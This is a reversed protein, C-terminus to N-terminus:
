TTPFCPPSATTCVSQGNTRPHMATSHKGTINFANLTEKYVPAVFESGRDSIVQPFGHRLIVHHLLVKAASQATNERTACAIATKTAYDTVTVIYKSGRIVYARVDYYMRPWYFRDKARTSTRSIGLHRCTPPDHLLSLVLPRLSLPVCLQMIDVAPSTRVHFLMDNVLRFCRLRRPLKSPLQSARVLHTVISAFDRDNRQLRILTDRDRIDTVAAAASSRLSNIQKNADVDTASPSSASAAETQSRTVVLATAASEPLRSLADADKHTKGLKYVIEFDFDQLFLAWRAIRGNPNKIRMLYCLSCHDTIIQFRKGFLYQRYILVHPLATSVCVRAIVDHHGPIVTDAALRVPLCTDHHFDPPFPFTHDGITICQQSALIGVPASRIFPVGLLVPHDFHPVVHATFSVPLDRIMGSVRVTGLTQTDASAIGKIVTPTSENIVLRTTTIFLLNVINLTSASDIIAKGHFSASAFPVSLLAAANSSIYCHHTTPATM